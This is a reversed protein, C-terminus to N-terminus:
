GKRWVIASGSVFPMAEEGYAYPYLRIAMITEDEEPNTTINQTSELPEVIDYDVKDGVKLPLTCVGLEALFDQVLQLLQEYVEPETSWGDRIPIIVKDICQACHKKVDDEFYDDAVALSQLSDLIDCLDETMFEVALQVENARDHLQLAEVKEKWDELFHEIVKVNGDYTGTYGVPLDIQFNTIYEVINLKQKKRQKPAAVQMRALRKENEAKGLPRVHIVAQQLSVQWEKYLM